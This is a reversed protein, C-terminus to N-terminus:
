TCLHPMQSLRFHGTLEPTDKYLPEVTNYLVFYTYVQILMLHYTYVIVETFRSCLNTRYFSSFYYLRYIPPLPSLPPCQEGFPHSPCELGPSTVSSMDSSSPSTIYNPSLPTAHSYSGIM